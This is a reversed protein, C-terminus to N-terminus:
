GLDDGGFPAWPQVPRHPRLQRHGSEDLRSRHLGPLGLPCFSHVTHHATTVGGSDIAVAVFDAPVFLALGMMAPVAGDAGPWELGVADASLRHCFCDWGWRWPAILVASSSPMQGAAGAPGARWTISSGIFFVAGRHDWSRSRTLLWGVKEGLQRMAMDAGLTFLGMGFILVAGRLFGCFPTLPM